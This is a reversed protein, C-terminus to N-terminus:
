PGAGTSGGSIPEVPRFEDDTLEAIYRVDAERIYVTGTAGQAKYAPYTQPHAESPYWYNSSYDAVAVRSAEQTGFGDEFVTAGEALVFLYAPDIM